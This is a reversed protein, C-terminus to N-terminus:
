LPTYNLEKTERELTAWLYLNKGETGQRINCKSNAQVRREWQRHPVKDGHNTGAVTFTAAGGAGEM